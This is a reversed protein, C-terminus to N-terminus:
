PSLLVAVMGDIDAPDVISSFSFDGHCVDDADQSLAVVADTFDQLDGGDVSGDGNMNGDPTPCDECADATGNMNADACTTGIGMWMNGFGECVGQGSISCGGTTLCCAGQPQPCSVQSCLLDDGQYVGGSAVCNAPTTTPQCTGNPLCCAGTPCQNSSPGVCTTGTGQPVGGFSTCDAPQLLACFGSVPNCCAQAPQPCNVSGCNSGNGQYTGSMGNCAAQTVSGVCTGDPKCCAGVLVPCTVQSCLLGPHFTGGAAACNSATGQDGACIGTPLCCAGVGEECDVVARIMFDGSIGFSCANTWGLGVADIANKGPQCGDTDTVVSPGLFPNPDNFFKFSVVFVEGEDVPVAIPITMQEDLFRYENLVGDTMVPGELVVISPGPIPFTGAEFITITDELTQPEGGFRSKWFVQIAVITGDCPSTLWSAASENPDFGAQIAVQSFDVVSDNKVVTEDALSAPSIGLTAGICAAFAAVISM